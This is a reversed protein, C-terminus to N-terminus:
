LGIIRRIRDLVVPKRATEGGLLWLIRDDFAADLLLAEFEDELFARVEPSASQVDEVISPRGDLVLVIDEMDHHMYDGHGRSRFSELKTAIFLPASVVRIARGSPLTQRQATKAAQAYWSNTFTLVAEDCPMVDVKLDRLRWRCIVEACEHFGREKLRECLAYYSSRPTVETVLDVDGTARVPPRTPDTVLLGVACGGVLVLDDMLPGLAHAVLEVDAINPDARM